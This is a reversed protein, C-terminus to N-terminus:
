IVQRRLFPESPSADTQLAPSRPEVGPNPLDGPSPFALGSWYEQRSFGVSPPSQHAATWLTEFTPCSMSVLDCGGGKSVCVNLNFQMLLYKLLKLLITEMSKLSNLLHWSSFINLQPGSCRHHPFLSYFKLLLSSDFVVIDLSLNFFYKKIASYYEMTDIYWLKRIWEYASPCRPQKWTRAIIFLATIFVPDRSKLISHLNTM